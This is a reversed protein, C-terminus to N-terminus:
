NKIIVSIEQVFLKCQLIIHHIIELFRQNKFLLKNFKNYRLTIYRDVDVDFHLLM